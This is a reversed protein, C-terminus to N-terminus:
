PITPHRRRPIAALRLGAATLLQPLHHLNLEFDGQSQRLLEESDGAWLAPLPLSLEALTALDNDSELQARNIRLTQGDSAVQITLKDLALQHWHGAVVQLEAEGTFAPLSELDGQLKAMGTLQGDLEYGEL